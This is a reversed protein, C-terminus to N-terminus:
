DDGDAVAEDNGSTAFRHLSVGIGWEVFRGAVVIVNINEIIMAPEIAVSVELRDVFGDLGAFFDLSAFFDTNEPFLPAAAAPSMQMEVDFGKLRGAFPADLIRVREEPFSVNAFVFRFTESDCAWMM